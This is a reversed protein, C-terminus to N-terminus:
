MTCASNLLIWFVNIDDLVCQDFRNEAGIWFISGYLSSPLFNAKNLLVWYLQPSSLEKVPLIHKMKLHHHRRLERQCGETLIFLVNSLYEFSPNHLAALLVLLGPSLRTQINGLFVFGLAKLNTCLVSSWSLALFLFCTTLTSGKLTSLTLLAKFIQLQIRKM